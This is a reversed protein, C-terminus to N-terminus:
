PWDRGFQMLRYDVETKSDLNENPFQVLEPGGIPAQGFEVIVELCAADLEGIGPPLSVVPSM